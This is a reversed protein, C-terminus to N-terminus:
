SAVINNEKARVVWNDRFAAVFSTFESGMPTPQRPCAFQTACGM